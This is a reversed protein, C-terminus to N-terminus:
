FFLFETRSLTTAGGFGAFLVEAKGCKLVNFSSCIISKCLFDKGASKHRRM